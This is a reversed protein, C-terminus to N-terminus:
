PPLSAHLDPNTPIHDARGGVLLVPSSDERSHLEAWGAPWLLRLGAYEQDPCRKCERDLIRGCLVAIREPDVAALVLEHTMSGSRLWEPLGSNVSFRRMRSRRHRGTDPYRYSGDHISWISYVIGDPLSNDNEVWSDDLALVGPDLGAALWKMTM